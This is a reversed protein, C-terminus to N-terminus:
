RKRSLLMTALWIGAGVFVLTKVEGFLEGLPNFDGEAPAPAQIVDTTSPLPTSATIEGQSVITPYGFGIWPTPRIVDFVVYDGVHQMIPDLDWRTQFVAPARGLASMSESYRPVVPSEDVWKRWRESEDKKLFIWYRGPPLPDRRELAV